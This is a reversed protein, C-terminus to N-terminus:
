KHKVKKSTIPYHDSNRSATVQSSSVHREKIHCGSKELGVLPKGQGERLPRM